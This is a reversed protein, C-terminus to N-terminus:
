KEDIIFSDLKDLYREDTFGTRNFMIISGIGIGPYIRLECYYGGGGGAHTFYKNGHLQGSFWSLCMGTPKNSNTVNETFLIKKYEDSILASNTRLLEQIYKVFAGPTGILGGYSTGNVYSNKYSKWKGETKDLYKKKNLFFGLILYSFSMRKHYGKAHLHTDTITFDLDGTNLHLPKLIHNRIVDEYSQGSVKEIIQGLLVYGLNSYAFKDNPATKTRPNKLFINKFFTNRDFSPHEEALHIWSLPIPNPIGASHTLLQKVTIEPSYPFGPLYYKAPQEIDMKKQMALQLIALATFTKTVSYAHYTINGATKTQNQIDAFGSQFQHIIRDQNFIVYQVSPTKNDRVQKILISDIEKTTM